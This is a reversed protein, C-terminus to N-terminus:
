YAVIVFAANAALVFAAVTLAQMLHRHMNDMPDRPRSVPRHHFFHSM